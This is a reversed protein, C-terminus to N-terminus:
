IKQGLLDVRIVALGAAQAQWFATDELGTKDKKLSDGYHKPHLGSRLILVAPKISYIHSEEEFRQKSPLTVHNASPNGGRRSFTRERCAIEAAGPFLSSFIALL